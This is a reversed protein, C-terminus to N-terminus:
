FNNGTVNVYSEVSVNLKGALISLLVEDNTGWTSLEDSTLTLNSQTRPNFSKVVGEVETITGFELVFNTQTAGAVYPRAIATMYGLSITTSSFPTVETVKEAAPNIKALLM